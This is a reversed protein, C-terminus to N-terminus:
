DSVRSFPFPLFGPVRSIKQKIHKREIKTCLFAPASAPLGPPVSPPEPVVSMLKPAGGGMESKAIRRAFLLLALLSRLCFLPLRVSCYRLKAFFSISLNVGPQSLEERHREDSGLPKKRAKRENAQKEMEGPRLGEWTEGREREREGGEKRGM